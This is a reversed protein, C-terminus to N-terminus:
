DKIYSVLVTYIQQIAIIFCIMAVPVHLGEKGGVSMLILFVSGCIIITTFCKKRQESKEDFLKEPERNNTKKNEKQENHRKESDSSENKNNHTYNSNNFSNFSLDYNKCKEQNSLIDYAEKIDKFKEEFFKDGNHKDPHFKSAHTRYAKKIEEYSATTKIDLLQYYNKNM